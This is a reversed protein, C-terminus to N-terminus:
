RWVKVGMKKLEEAMSDAVEARNYGPWGSAKLDDVIDGYNVEGYARAALEVFGKLMESRRALLEDGHGEVFATLPRQPNGPDKRAVYGEVWVRVLHSASVGDRECIELFKRWTAKFGAPAYIKVEPNKDVVGM